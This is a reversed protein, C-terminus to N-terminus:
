LVSRKRALPATECVRLGLNTGWEYLTICRVLEIKKDYSQRSVGLDRKKIQTCLSLTTGVTM